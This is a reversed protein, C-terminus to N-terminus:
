GDVPAIVWLVIIAFALLNRVALALLNLRHFAEELEDGAIM